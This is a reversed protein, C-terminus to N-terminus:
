EDTPPPLELRCCGLNIRDCHSNEDTQLVGPTLSYLVYRGRKESQVLGAQRLVSMHHSVNVLKTDLMKAIEGVNRPGERLFRVIRLRDAAALAALQEACQTPKLPDDSV